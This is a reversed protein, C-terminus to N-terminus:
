KAGRLVATRVPSSAGTCPHGRGPRLQGAGAPGGAPAAGPADTHKRLAFCVLQRLARQRWSHSHTSFEHFSGQEPGPQLGLVEGGWAGRERRLFTPHDSRGGPRGQGQLQSGNGGPALHCHRSANETTVSSLSNNRAAAPCLGMGLVLVSGAGCTLVASTRLSNM